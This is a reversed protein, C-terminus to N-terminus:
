KDPWAWKPTAWACAPRWCNSDRTRKRAVLSSARAARPPRSFTVRDGEISVHEIMVVADAGKPVAAGTMIQVCEGAGVAGDFGSGARVEGISRLTAGPRADDARVAFGDRISRDFPPYDRDAKVPEALVRGCARSLEITLNTLPPRLARVTAIIKQRAEQFSLM